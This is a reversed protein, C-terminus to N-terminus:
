PYLWGNRRNAERTLDQGTTVNYGIVHGVDTDDWTMPTNTPPSVNAIEIPRLPSRNIPESSTNSQVLTGNSSVGSGGVAIYPVQYTTEPRMLPLTVREYRITRRTYPSGDWSTDQVNTTIRQYGFEGYHEDFEEVLTPSDATFTTGDACRYRDNPRLMVRNPTPPYLQGMLRENAERTEREQRDIEELNALRIRIAEPTDEPYDQNENFISPATPETSSYTPVYYQEVWRNFGDSSPSARISPTNSPDEESNRRFLSSLRPM